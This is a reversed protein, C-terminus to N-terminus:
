GEGLSQKLWNPRRFGVNGNVQMEMGLDREIRNMKYKDLVNTIHLIVIENALMDSDRQFLHSNDTRM